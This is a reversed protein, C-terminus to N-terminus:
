EKLWDLYFTMLTKRQEVSPIKQDIYVSDNKYHTTSIEELVAGQCSSFGHIKQREIVVIDGEAYEKIQNDINLSVNGYLVHFTEEKKLHYHQPHEQGPLVLIIKKCYERNVCTVIACGHNYFDDIGYHHSLELDLGDGLKVNSQKILLCIRQIAQLVKERLNKYDVNDVTLPEDKHIDKTAVLRSYKSIQNAVFQGEINPIAFYMKDQTILEGCHIDDKIFVGRKLGQLDRSEQDSIMRRGKKVGCMIQAQSLAVLWNKIQSVDSSYLNLKYGKQEDICGIHREFVTAGKGAALVVPFIANPDEHTSFGVDIDLYRKKFFDIQNMELSEDPTPYAGVCHMLCFKKNRHRFFSVVSDIEELKAGATSAIIPKDVSSIKELLPWDTFSCSAIKLYDFDQQVIKDVSVEDFATCMTYFGCKKATQKLDLFQEDSLKTEEFRKIYKIDQRGKYNKHIFTDLNRYQFKIAFKFKPFLKQVESFSEIIRKGHEVDGMHNNAMEFIILNDFIDYMM